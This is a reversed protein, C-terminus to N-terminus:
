RPRHRVNDSQQGIPTWEEKRIKETYRQYTQSQPFQGHETSPVPAHLYKTTLGPHNKKQRFWVCVCACVCVCASIWAVSSRMSSCDNTEPGTVEQSTEKTSHAPFLVSYLYM